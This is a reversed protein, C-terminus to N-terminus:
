CNTLLCEEYVTVERHNSLVYSALLAGKELSLLGKERVLGCAGCLSRTPLSGEAGQPSLLFTACFLLLQFRHRLPHVVRGRRSALQIHVCVPSVPNYQLVRVMERRGQPLELWAAPTIGM